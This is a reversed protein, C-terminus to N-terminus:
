GNIVGMIINSLVPHSDGIKELLLRTEHFYKVRFNGDVLKTGLCNDLRDCLKIQQVLTPCEKLREFENIKRNIRKLHPHDQSTYQNTLDLVMDAVVKGFTERVEDYTAHGDEVVDHLLCVDDVLKDYDPLYLRAYAAVRVLHHIYPEGGRRRDKQHKEQAFTLANALYGTRLFSSMRSTLYKSRKLADLVHNQM